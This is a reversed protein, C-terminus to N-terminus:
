VSQAVAKPQVSLVQRSARVYDQRAYLESHENISTEPMLM